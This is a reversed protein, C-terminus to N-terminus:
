ILISNGHTIYITVEKEMDLDQSGEEKLRSRENVLNSPPEDSGMM